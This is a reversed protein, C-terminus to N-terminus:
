DEGTIDALYEFGEDEVELFDLLANWTKDIYAEGDETLEALGSEIASTLPLSVDWYEVFPKFKEDESSYVECLISVKCDNETM